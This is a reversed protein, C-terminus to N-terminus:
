SAMTGYFRDYKPVDNVQIFRAISSSLYANIDQITSQKQEVNRFLAM